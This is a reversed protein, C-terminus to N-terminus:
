TSGHLGQPGEKKGRRLTSRGLAALGSVPVVIVAPLRKQSRRAM